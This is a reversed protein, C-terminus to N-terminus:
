SSMANKIAAPMKIFAEFEAIDEEDLMPHRLVFERAANLQEELADHAQCVDGASVVTPRGFPTDAQHPNGRFERINGDFVCTFAM